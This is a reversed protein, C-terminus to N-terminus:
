NCQKQVHPLFVNYNQEFVPIIYLEIRKKCIKIKLDILIYIQFGVFSSLNSQM